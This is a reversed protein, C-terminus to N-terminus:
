QRQRIEGGEACVACLECNRLAFGGQFCAIKEGGRALEGRHDKRITAAVQRQRSFLCPSFATIQRHNHVDPNKNLSRGDYGVRLSRMLELDWSELKDTVVPPHRQGPCAVIQVEPTHQQALCDLALKRPSTLKRETLAHSAHM